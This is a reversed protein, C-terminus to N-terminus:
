WVNLPLDIRLQVVRHFLKALERGFRRVIRKGVNHSQKVLERVVDLVVDLANWFFVTEDLSNAWLM